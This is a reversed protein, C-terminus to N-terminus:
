NKKNVKCLGGIMGQLHAKVGTLDPYIAISSSNFVEENLRGIFFVGTKEAVLLDENSDGVYAVEDPTVKEESMVKLFVDYKQWPTGYMGKFYRDIGRAKIIAVLEERPSSSAVFLPVLGSFYGLFEEAGKVYPCEVVKQYVLQSFRTGLEKEREEDYTEGLIQTVIHKFKIFRSFANYELHHRMIRDIHEPYDSFLERFAETKIGLSEVIVGDFDLILM